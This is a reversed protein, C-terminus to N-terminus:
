AVDKKVVEGPLTSKEPWMKRGPYVSTNIGTKVGDGLVTGHKKRGTGVLKGGVMSMIEEGDHRLNAVLFGAGLNVREGAISNGFYSLHGISANDMVISNKVEVANGIRCNDGISTYPRIFCNPGIDCNEGIVVPGEIYTGSRLLTNRGVSVKGKITVGKEVTAYVDGTIDDLVKENADLLNWPYAVPVWFAANEVAVTEKRAFKNLAATLEYEGRSSKKLKKCHEFIGPDLVYVGTNASGSRKGAPKEKVGDLVGRKSVVEGFSSLDDVKKALICLDRKACRRIDEGGYVDDGMLLVFKESIEKEAALLADATGKQLKQEVYSIKLRGFRDGLFEKLQDGEYGTVVVVEKAVGQLQSLTRGIISVNAIKLLAKPKKLTLPYTRTSKGAALIVAKM